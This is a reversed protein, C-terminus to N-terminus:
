RPIWLEVRFGDETPGTTVAGGILAARERMGTLGYGTGGGPPERAPEGDRHDEVTFRLGHPEGRLRIEIRDPCAHKRINTLSEQAVRYLTMRIDTDLEYSGGDFVFTCPIGTDGAFEAALQEIREPGPLADDRLMGIARQAEELGTKALRHARTLAEELQGGGVGREAMLRAGELNLLLGSLSHALVDHMERALRQREALAASEAQAARTAELQSIMEQSYQDAVIFRRAFVALGYYAAVALEDIITADITRHAGLAAGLGLAGLALGTVMMATQGKLRFAAASIPPFMGLFGPGDPQIGVMVAAAAIMVVLMVVRIGTADIPLREFSVMGVAYAVLSLSVALHQGHLGPGPKARIVVAALAGVAVLALPGTWRLTAAVRAPTLETTAKIDAMSDASYPEGSVGDGPVRTSGAMWGRTSTADGRLEVASGFIPPALLRM